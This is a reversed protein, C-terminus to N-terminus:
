SPKDKALLEIAENRLENYLVGKSVITFAEGYCSSCIDDLDYEYGTGGCSGCVEFNDLFKKAFAELQAIHEAMEPAKAFLEAYEQAEKDEAPGTVAVLGMDDFCVCSHKEIARFSDTTEYVGYNLHKKNM